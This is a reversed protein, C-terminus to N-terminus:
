IRTYWFCFRNCVSNTRKPLLIYSLPLKKIEMIINIVM